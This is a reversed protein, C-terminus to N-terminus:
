ATKKEVVSYAKCLFAYTFKPLINIIKYVDDIFKLYKLFLNWCWQIRMEPNLQHERQRQYSINMNIKIKTSFFHEMLFAIIWRMKWNNNHVLTQM